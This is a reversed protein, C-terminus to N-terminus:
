PDKYIVRTDCIRDHLARKEEDFAAMIFGIYFILQSLLFAFFRAVGRWFTIPGGYPRIVRLGLILKGPTGGRKSLFWGQYIAQLLFVLLYMVGFWGFMRVVVAPDPQRNTPMKGVGSSVTIVIMFPWIVAGMILGDLFLALLRIWFGAYRM